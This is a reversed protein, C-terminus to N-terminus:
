REVMAGLPASVVLVGAGADVLQLSRGVLDSDHVYLTQGARVPTAAAHWTAAPVCATGATAVCFKRGGALADDYSLPEGDVKLLLDNWLVDSQASSVTFTKTGAQSIGSSSTLGLAAPASGPTGFGFAWVYMGAAMAVSVAVMLVVGLTDSVGADDGRRPRSHGM